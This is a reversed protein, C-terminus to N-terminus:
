ATAPDHVDEADSQVRGINGPQRGHEFAITFAEQLPHKGGTLNGITGPSSIGSRVEGASKGRFFRRHLRKASSMRTAHQPFVNLNDSAATWRAKLKVATGRSARLRHLHPAREQRDGM